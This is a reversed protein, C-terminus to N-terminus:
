STRYEVVARLMIASPNPTEIRGSFERWNVVATFMLVTKSASGIMLRSMETICSRWLISDGAAACIFVTSNSATWLANQVGGRRRHFRKLCTPLSALGHRSFDDDVGIRALVVGDGNQKSQGGRLLQRHEGDDGHGAIHREGM